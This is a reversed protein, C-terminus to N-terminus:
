VLIYHVKLGLYKQQQTLIPSFLGWAVSKQHPLYMRRSIDGRFWKQMYGQTGLHSFFFGLLIADTHQKLHMASHIFFIRDSSRLILSKKILAFLPLLWGTAKRSYFGMKEQCIKRTERWNYGTRLEWLVKYMRGQVTRLAVTYYVFLSSQLWGWSWSPLNGTKEAEWIRQIFAKIHPTIPYHCHGIFLFMKRNILNETRLFLTYMGCVIRGTILCVCLYEKLSHDIHSM